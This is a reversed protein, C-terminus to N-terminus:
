IVQRYCMKDTVQYNSLPYLMESCKAAVSPENGRKTVARDSGDLALQIWKVDM